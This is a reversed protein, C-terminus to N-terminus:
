RVKNTAPNYVDIWKKSKSQVFEGNIFLPLRQPAATSMSRAMTRAAVAYKLSMSLSMAVFSRPYPPFCPAFLSWNPSLASPHISQIPALVFFLKPLPPALVLRM